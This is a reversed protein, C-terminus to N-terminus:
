YYREVSYTSIKGIGNIAATPDFFYDKGDLTFEVWAHYNSDAYGIMLRAPVGQTRLMCCMIASLDQCVGKRAAFCGDIDPLEGAQITLAKIFDYIFTRSMFDCVTSYSEQATKGSCLSESEAVAESFISYNVYQNPVLFCCDASELQVSLTIKGAGAYKKGSVNEYLSIEYNGDGLQLPFCEYEAGSNLDYTLTQDGRTVRLKLRHKSPERASAWFYGQSTYGTDVQLKGDKEVAQGPPEAWRAEARIGAPFLFCCFLIASFLWIRPGVRM